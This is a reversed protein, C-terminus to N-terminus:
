QSKLSDYNKIWVKDLSKAISLQDLM